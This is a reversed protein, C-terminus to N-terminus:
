RLLVDITATEVLGKVRRAARSSAATDAFCL